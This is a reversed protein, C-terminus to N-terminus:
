LEIFKFSGVIFQCFYIIVHVIMTFKGSPFKFVKDREMRVKLYLDVNYFAVM